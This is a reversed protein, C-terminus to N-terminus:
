RGLQHDTEQLEVPLRRTGYSRKHYDFFAVMETKLVLKQPGVAGSGLALRWAYHRSPVVGLM